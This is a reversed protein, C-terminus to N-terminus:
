GHFILGTGSPGIPGTPGTSGVKGVPIAFTFLGTVTDYTVIPTGTSGDPNNPVSTVPDVVGVNRWLSQMEKQITRLAAISVTTVALTSGQNVTVNLYM